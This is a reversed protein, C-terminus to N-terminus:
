RKPKGPADIFLFPKGAIENYRPTVALKDPYPEFLEAAEEVSLQIAGYAAREQEVSDMPQFLRSVPKNM